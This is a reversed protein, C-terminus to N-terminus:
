YSIGYVIGNSEPNINILDGMFAIDVIYTYGTSAREEYYHIKGPSEPDEQFKFYGNSAHLLSDCNICPIIDDALEPVKSLMLVDGGKNGITISKWAYVSANAEGPETYYQGKYAELAIKASAYNKPSLWYNDCKKANHSKAKLDIQTAHLYFLKELQNFFRKIM